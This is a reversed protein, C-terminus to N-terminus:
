FNKKAKVCNECFKKINPSGKSGFIAYSYQTWDLLIKAGFRDTLITYKEDDKTVKFGYKILEDLNEQYNM